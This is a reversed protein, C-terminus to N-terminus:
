FYGIELPPYSLVPKIYIGQQTALAWLVRGCLETLSPAALVTPLGAIFLGVPGSTAAGIATLAAIMAAEGGAAAIGLASFAGFALDYYEIYLAGDQIYFAPMPVSETTLPVNVGVVQSILREYQTDSFQFENKLETESLAISLQRTTEDIYWYDTVSVVKNIFDEDAASFVIESSYFNDQGPGAAFAPAVLSFVLSLTLIASLVKKLM